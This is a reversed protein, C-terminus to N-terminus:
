LSRWKNVLKRAFGTMKWSTSDLIANYSHQFHDRQKELELRLREKHQIEKNQAELDKKQIELYKTLTALERVMTDGKQGMHSIETRLQAAAETHESNHKDAEQLKETLEKIKAANKQNLAAIEAENSNKAEVEVEKIKQVLDHNKSQLEAVQRNRGDFAEIQNKLDENLRELEADKQAVKPRLDELQKEMMENISEFSHLEGLRSFVQHVANFGPEGQKLEAMKLLQADRNEGVLLATLGSGSNFRIMPFRDGLRKMVAKGAADTFAERQSGHILVIARETLKPLWDQLQIEIDNPAADSDILLMDISGDDFNAVASTTPSVIFESIDQYMRSNYSAIRDHVQGGTAEWADVAYCKSEPRLRDLAQCAAFHATGNEHLGLTVFCNPPQNEILWFLFPIHHLFESDDLFRVRWFLAKASLPQAPNGDPLTLTTTVPKSSAKPSM